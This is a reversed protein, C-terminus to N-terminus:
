YTPYMRGPNLIGAPDFVAKLKRSILDVGPELPQFVEVAARVAPEARILTAHGGHAAIVRRIDAAGADAAPLVEAWVLGGSWDYFANCEMYRRIAAVVKPGALPTTSLRWLPASSGQLISLQRLEDWFSVSSQRDLVHMEGFPKLEDRLRGVRYAVSKAFNEVRLATVSKGEGRLQDHWLRQVLSPQLHVAGSVEYPTTMASALAEIAIGDELGFFVITAVDEPVPLVKFTVDTIVALTGWSGCVARALDYGTVNKMVRGGSRFPTGNGTVANIGLIHDRAGGSAVRRSGSLNTAFVAGITTNGPEVGVVPGLDVPEFALMQGQSQLEQEIRALPTGARACMVLETPEYLKVGTLSTTTMSFSAQTLRGVARKSGLGMIEVPQRGASADALTRQLERETAPRVLSQV